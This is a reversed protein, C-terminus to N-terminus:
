PETNEFAVQYYDGDESASGYEARFRMANMDCNVNGVVRQPQFTDKRTM